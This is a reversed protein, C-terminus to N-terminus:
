ANISNLAELVKKQKYCASNITNSEADTCPHPVGLTSGLFEGAVIARLTPDEKDGFDRTYINNVVRLENKNLALLQDATSMFYSHQYNVGKLSVNIGKAISYYRSEDIAGSPLRDVKGDGEVLKLKGRQFWGLRIGLLIIGLVLIGLGIAIYTLAKNSM